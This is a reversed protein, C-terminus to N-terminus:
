YDCGKDYLYKLAKNKSKGVGLNVKNQVWSVHSFDYDEGISAVDKSLPEGDNVVVLEDIQCEQPISDLLGKLYHPRNCTVIGVGIKAKMTTIVYKLM